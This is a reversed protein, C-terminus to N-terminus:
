RVSSGRACNDFIVGCNPQQDNHSATPGRWFPGWGGRMHYKGVHSIMRVRRQYWVCNIALNVRGCDATLALSQTLTGSPSSSSTRVQVVDEDELM